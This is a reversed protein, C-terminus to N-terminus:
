SHLIARAQAVPMGTPRRAAFLHGIKAVDTIIPLLTQIAKAVTGLTGTKPMLAAIDDAVSVFSSVTPKAADVTTTTSLSAILTKAKDLLGTVSTPLSGKLSEVKSVISNADDLIATLEPPLKIDVPLKPLSSCAALVSGGIGALLIHRRDIM